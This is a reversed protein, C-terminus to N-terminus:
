IMNGRLEVDNDCAAKMEEFTYKYAQCGELKTKEITYLRLVDQYESREELVENLRYPTQFVNVRAFDDITLHEVGRFNRIEIDKFGDM